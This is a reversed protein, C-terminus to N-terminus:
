PLACFAAEFATKQYGRLTTPVEPENRKIASAIAQPNVLDVESDTYLQTIAEMKFGVPGGAYDGKKSRKKISVREVRNERFFAYLSDRFARIENANEDDALPLKRPEINVHLFDTKTGNLVVLRVESAAMELGCVIM